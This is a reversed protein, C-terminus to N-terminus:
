LLGPRPRRVQAARIAPREARYRAHNPSRDAVKPFGHVRSRGGAPDREPGGGRGSARRQAVRPPWAWGYSAGYWKGNIYEGVEGSLGVNDPVIGNNAEARGIWAKTYEFVWQRYKKEGTLLFANAALSTALLNVVADGRGQRDCIARGLREPLAPVSGVAEHSTCGPVDYFPLNYGHWPWYPATRLPGTPRGWAATGHAASSESKRTTTQPKPIKM